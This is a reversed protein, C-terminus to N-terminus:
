MVSVEPDALQLALHRCILLREFPFEFFLASLAHVAHRGRNEHGVLLLSWCIGLFLLVLGLPLFPELRERAGAALVLVVFSVLLGVVLVGARLGTVSDPLPEAIITRRFELGM